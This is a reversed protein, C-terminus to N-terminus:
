SKKGSSQSKFGDELSEILKSEKLTKLHFSLNITGQNIDSIEKQLISYSLPVLSNNLKKLIEIRNKQGLIRLHKELLVSNKDAGM